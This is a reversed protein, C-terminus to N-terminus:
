NIFDVSVDGNSSDLDITLAASTNFSGDTVGMGDYNLDGNSTDLRVSYDDKDGNIELEIDGNSSDLEVYNATIDYCLVKGNSTQGDIENAEVSTLTIRGNSTDMYLEDDVTVNTITIRGNSTDFRMNSAESDVVTVTGNSSSFRLDDLNTINLMNMTGNSSHVDLNYVVTSPLYLYVDFYEDNTIFNFGIFFNNYWEIEHLIKLTSEGETVTVTEKEAKYYQVKIQDDESQRVIIDRNTFDFDFDTFEDAVYSLEFYEFSDEDISTFFNEEAVVSFVAIVGVGILFLALAFKLLKGM